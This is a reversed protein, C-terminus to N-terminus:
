GGGKAEDLIKRWEPKSEAADLGLNVLAVIVTNQSVASDQQVGAHLAIREILAGLDDPFNVTTRKM